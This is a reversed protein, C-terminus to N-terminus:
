SKSLLYNVTNNCLKVLDEVLTDRGAVAEGRHDASSAADLGTVGASQVLKDLFSIATSKQNICQHFSPRQVSQLGDRVVLVVVCQVFLLAEEGFCLQM